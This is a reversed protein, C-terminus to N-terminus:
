RGCDDGMVANMNVEIEAMFSQFEVISNNEAGHERGDIEVNVKERSYVERRKFKM